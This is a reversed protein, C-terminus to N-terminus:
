ETLSHHQECYKTFIHWQLARQQQMVRRQSFQWQRKWIQREVSFNNNNNFSTSVHPYHWTHREVSFIATITVHHAAVFNDVCKGKKNWSLPGKRNEAKRM